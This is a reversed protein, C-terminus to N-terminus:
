FLTSFLNLVPQVMKWRRPRNLWDEYSIENSIEFLNNFDKRIEMQISQGSMWVGNEYHLYFSRYDM